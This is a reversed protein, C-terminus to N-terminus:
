RKLKRVFYIVLIINILMIIVLANMSLLNHVFAHKIDYNAQLLPDIIKVVLFMGPIYSLIMVFFMLKGEGLQRLSGLICGGSLVIGAGFILGSLLNFFGYGRIHGITKLGLEPNIFRSLGFGISTIIFILILQKRIRTGRGTFIELLGHTVCFGARQIFVGFGIGFGLAILLKLWLAM